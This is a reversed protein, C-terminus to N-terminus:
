RVVTFKMNLRVRKAAMMAITTAITTAL